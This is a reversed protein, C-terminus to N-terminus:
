GNCIAAVVLFPGEWGVAEEVEVDGLGECDEVAAVVPMVVQSLAVREEESSEEGETDDAEISREEGCLM